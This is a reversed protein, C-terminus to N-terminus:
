SVIPQADMVTKIIAMTVNINSSFEMEVYKLVTEMTRLQLVLCRQAISVNGLM